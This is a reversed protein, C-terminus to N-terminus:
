KKTQNIYWKDLSIICNGYKVSQYSGGKYASSIDACTNDRSKKFEVVNQDKIKDLRNDYKKMKVKLCENIQYTNGDCKTQAFTTFPSIICITIILLSPLKM